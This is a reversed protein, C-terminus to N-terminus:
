LTCVQLAPVGTSRCLLAFRKCQLRCRGYPFSGQPGGLASQCRGPAPGSERFTSSSTGATPKCKALTAQMSRDDLQRCPTNGKRCPIDGGRCPRDILECPFCAQM